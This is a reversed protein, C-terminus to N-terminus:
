QPQQGSEGEDFYHALAKFPTDPIDAAKQAAKPQKVPIGPCDPRCLPQLPAALLAAQRFLVDLKIVKGSFIPELEDEVIEVVKDHHRADEVLKIDFEEEIDVDIQARVPALCRSCELSIATHFPGRVLIMSVTNTIALRASLPSVYEVDEDTFPPEQIDFVQRM